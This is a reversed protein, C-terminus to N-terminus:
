TPLRRASKAASAASNRWSAGPSACPPPCDEARDRRARRASWDRLKGLDLDFM